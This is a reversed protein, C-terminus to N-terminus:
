RRTVDGGHIDKGAGHAGWRLTRGQGEQSEPCLGLASVAEPARIARLRGRTGTQEGEQLGPAKREVRCSCQEPTQPHSEGKGANRGGGATGEEM